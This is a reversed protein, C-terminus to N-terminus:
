VVKKLEAYKNKYKAYKYHYISSGGTQKTSKKKTNKINKSSKPKQKKNNREIILFTRGKLKNAQNIKKTLETTSMKHNKDYKDVINDCDFIVNKITDLDMDYVEKYKRYQRKKLINKVCNEVRNTDEAELIFLPEIDNANVSNYSIMRKKINLSKGIKYVDDNSNMAKIVYIVGGESNIKPKQNNKLNSIQKLLNEQIHKYYKNVLSELAIYYRRVTKAKDTRSLMCLEKFCNSTLTIKHVYSAGRSRKVDSLKREIKYDFHEEFNNILTEKLNKKQVVLWKVVVDFDITFSTPDLHNKSISFFDDIFEKPTSSHKKLFQDM